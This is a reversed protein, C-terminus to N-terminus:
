SQIFTFKDRLQLISVNIGESGKEKKKRQVMQMCVSMFNIDIASPHYM